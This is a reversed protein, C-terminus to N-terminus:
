YGLFNKLNTTSYCYNKKRLNNHQEQEFHPISTANSLPQQNYLPFALLRDHHGKLNALPIVRKFPRWQQTPTLGVGSHKTRELYMIRWVFSKNNMFSLSPAKMANTMHSRATQQHNASGVVHIPAFPHPHTQYM